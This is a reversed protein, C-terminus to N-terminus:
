PRDGSDLPTPMKPLKTKKARSKKQRNRADEKLEADTTRGGALRMMDYARSVKLGDVRQLFAKFDKVSACMRRAELLLAGVAKSRSVLEAQATTARREADNAVAVAMNIKQLLEVEAPNQADM